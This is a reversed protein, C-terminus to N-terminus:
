GRVEASCLFGVLLVAPFAVLPPSHTYRLHHWLPKSTSDSPPSSEQQQCGCLECAHTAITSM